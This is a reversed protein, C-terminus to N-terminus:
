PIPTPSDLLPAPLKTGGIWTALTYGSYDRVELYQGPGIQSQRAIEKLAEMKREDPLSFWSGDVVAITTRARPDPYVSRVRVMGAIMAPAETKVKSAPYVTHRTEDGSRECFGFLLAFAVVVVRRTRRYSWVKEYLFGQSKGVDREANAEELLEEAANEVTDARVHSDSAVPRPKERKQGTVREALREVQDIATAIRAQVDRLERVQAPDGSALARGLAGNLLDLAMKLEGRWLKFPPIGPPSEEGSAFFADFLWTVLAARCRALPIVALDSEASGPAADLWAKECGVLVPLRVGSTFGIRLRRADLRQISRMQSAFDEVSSDLSSLFSEFREIETVNLGVFQARTSRLPSGPAPTSSITRAFVPTLEFPPPLKLAIQFVEGPELAIPSEFQAGGPSVNLVKATDRRKGSAAIMAPIPVACRKWRRLPRGLVLSVAEEVRAAEHPPMLVDRAGSGFAASRLDADDAAAVVIINSAGSDRIAALTRESNRSVPILVVGDASGAAALAGDLDPSLLLEIDARGRFPAAAAEM